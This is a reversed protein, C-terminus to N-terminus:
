KKANSNAPAPTRPKLIDSLLDPKAPDRDLQPYKEGGHYDLACTKFYEENEVLLEGKMPQQFDPTALGAPRRYKGNWSHTMEHPLLDAGLKRPYDDISLSIPGTQAPSSVAFWLACVISLALHPCNKAKMLCYAEPVTSGVRPSM